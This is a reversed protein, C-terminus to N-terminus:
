RLSSFQSIPLLAFAFNSLAFPFRVPDNAGDNVSASRPSAVKVENRPSTSVEVGTDVSSEPDTETGVEDDTSGANSTSDQSEFHNEEVLYTHITNDKDKAFAVNRKEKSKESTPESVLSTEKSFDSDAISLSDGKTSTSVQRLARSKNSNAQKLGSNLKAFIDQPNAPPPPPLADEKREEEEKKSFAFISDEDEEYDSVSETANPTEFEVPIMEQMNKAGKKNWDMTAKSGPVNDSPVVETSQVPDIWEVGAGDWDAFEEQVVPNQDARATISFPDSQLNNQSNYDWSKSAGIIQRQRPPSKGDSDGYDNGWLNRQKKTANNRWGHSGSENKADWSKSSNIPRLEEGRSSEWSKSTGIRQPLMTKRSEYEIPNLAEKKRKGDFDAYRKATIAMENYKISHGRVKSASRPVVNEEDEEWLNAHIALRPNKKDLSDASSVNEIIFKQNKKKKKKEEKKRIPTGTLAEDSNVTQDMSSTLAEDNNTHYELDAEPHDEYSEPYVFNDDHGEITMMHSGDKQKPSYVDRDDMSDHQPSSTDITLSPSRSQYPSPDPATPFAEFDDDQFAAFSNSKAGPITLPSPSFPDFAEFECADNTPSLQEKRRGHKETVVENQRQVNEMQEKQQNQLRQIASVDFQDNPFDYTRRSRSSIRRSSSSNFISRPHTPSSLPNTNNNPSLGDFEFASKAKSGYPSKQERPSPAASSSVNNVIYNGESELSHISARARSTSRSRSRSRIAVPNSLSRPSPSPAVQHPKAAEIESSLTTTSTAAAALLLEKNVTPGAPSLPVNRPSPRPTTGSGGSKERKM